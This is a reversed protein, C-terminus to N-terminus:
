EVRPIDPLANFGTIVRVSNTVENGASDFLTFTLNAEADTLDFYPRPGGVSFTVSYARAYGDAELRLPVIRDRNFLTRTSTEMRARLTVAGSLDVCRAEIHFRVSASSQGSNLVRFRDCNQLRGMGNATVDDNRGIFVARGGPCDATAQPVHVAPGNTCCTENVTPLPSVCGTAPDCQPQSCDDVPNVQIVLPGNAAAPPEGDDTCSLGVSFPGLQEETPTWTLTSPGEVVAGNPLSEAGCSFGDGEADTALPLAIPFGPYTTYIKDFLAPPQNTPPTATPTATRVATPTRTPSPARTATPPIVTTTPQPCGSIAADVAAVVEDVTVRQDGSSDATECRSHDMADLAIEVCRVLEDSRVVADNDCDGPCSAGFTPTAFLWGGLLAISLARIGMKRGHVGWGVM